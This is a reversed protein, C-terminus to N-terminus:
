AEKRGQVERALRKAGTVARLFDARGLKKEMHAQAQKWLPM